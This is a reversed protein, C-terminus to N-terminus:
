LFDSHGKDRTQILLIAHCSKLLKNDVDRSAITADSVFGSAETVSLKRDTALNIQEPM